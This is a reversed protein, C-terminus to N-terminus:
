TLGKGCKKCFGDPHMDHECVEGTLADYDEDDESFLLSMLKEPDTLADKLKASEENIKAKNNESMMQEFEKDTQKKGDILEAASDRVLAVIQMVVQGDEAIGLGSHEHVLTLGIPRLAAETDEMLQRIKDPDIFSM